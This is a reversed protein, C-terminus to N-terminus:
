QKGDEAEEKRNNKDKSPQYSKYAEELQQAKTYNKMQYAKADEPPRIAEHKKGRVIANMQANFDKREETSASADPSLRKVADSFTPNHVRVGTPRQDASRSSPRSSSRDGAANEMPKISDKPFNTTKKHAKAGSSRQDANSSSTSFSSAAATGSLPVVPDKPTNAKPKSSEDEGSGPAADMFDASFGANKQEQAKAADDFSAQANSGPSVAQSQTDPETAAAPQTRSQTSEEAQQEKRGDRIKQNLKKGITEGPTAYGTQVSREHKTQGTAAAMGANKIGSAAKAATSTGSKLVSGAMGMMAMTRGVSSKLGADMGLLREVLNPGDIVAYAVFVSVIGKGLGTIGLSTIAGTFIVYLKICLVSVCLTIYTDRIFLLLAKLREGNSVDAAYMFALIRSVVLEYAMRVNKYALAGYMLILAGLQLLCSFFDFSYRYYFENGINARTIGDDNKKLESGDATSILHFKIKNNFNQSWGYLKKGNAATYWDLTENINIRSMDDASQIGAGYLIGDGAKYNLADIDGNKEIHVLDIINNELLDYSQSTQSGGDLIGDKFSAALSNATSFLYGSCSVALIGILINRILNVKEQKVMYTVGLGAVCLCTIAVLVPKLQELIANVDPYNTLDILGFTKDYLTECAESVRCVLKTLGFGIWRLADGIMNHNALIASNNEYWATGSAESNDDTEKKLFNETQEAAATPQDQTGEAPAAYASVALPVLLILLLFLAAM